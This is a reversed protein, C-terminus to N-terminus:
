LKDCWHFKRNLFKIFRDILKKERGREKKENVNIRM